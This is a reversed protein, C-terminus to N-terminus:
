AAPSAPLVSRRTLQESISWLRRADDANRARRSPTEAVPTAGLAIFRPGYFQGGRASPDTAARVAPRAGLAAAQTTLPVITRLVSNSLAGGEFGLDTNSGGPHAALATPAGSDLRRNLEATFLLNALKSQLYAGWRRYHREFMLDSFHM